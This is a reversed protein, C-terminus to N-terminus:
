KIKKLVVKKLVKKVVKKMVKKKEVKKVEKKVTKVTKVVKAGKDYCSSLKKPVAIMGWNKGGNYKSRYSRIDAAENTKKNPHARNILVALKSDSLKDKENQVLVRIITQGVTEKKEKGKQAKKAMTNGGNKRTLKKEEEKAQEYNLGVTLLQKTSETFGDINYDRSADINQQIRTPIPVQNKIFDKEVLAYKLRLKILTLPQKGFPPNGPLVKKWFERIIPIIEKLNRRKEETYWNLLTSLPTEEKKKNKTKRSVLKIRRKKGM